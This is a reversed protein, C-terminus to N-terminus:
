KTEGAHGGSEMLSKYKDALATFPLQDSPIGRIERFAEVGVAFSDDSIVSSVDLDEMAGSGAVISSAEGTDIYWSSRGVHPVDVLSSVLQNIKGILGSIPRHHPSHEGGDPKANEMGHNNRTLENM